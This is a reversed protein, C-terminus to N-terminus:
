CSAFTSDWGSGDDKYTIRPPANAMSAKFNRIDKKGKVKPRHPPPVEQRGLAEWDLDKYWKHRELNSFEGWRMPLRKCPEPDLLGRILSRADGKCSTPFDVRDIGDVIRQYMKMSDAAEFPPEGALLEWIFIGLTWWDLAFTHGRQKVMEPAFYSPTGCVTYTKGFTLKALGMDTLKAHGEANLVVNEPKLDRYIVKLGHLHRLACAMSASYFQAHKTSGYFGQRNYLAYLEGGLAVELLFFLDQPGSYTAHLSVIFPSDAMWLVEKENMVSEQLGLKVIYAKSMTKLAYAEKTKKHEYLEVLGFAGCGLLGVKALDSQLIAEKPKAKSAAIKQKSARRAGSQGEKILDELPGLLMDFSAKDLVLATAIESMVQITASRPENSLLAREGFFPLSGASRCAVLRHVERGDKIVALEGELLIYFATGPHGQEVIVEAKDYQLEVFAQAMARLEAPLLCQLITVGKLCEIHQEIQENTSRMLIKKFNARDFVWVISDTQAQVTASRPAVCLLAMEGFSGGPGITKLTRVGMIKREVGQGSAKQTDRETASVKFSGDQVVYFYDAVIDDEQILSTGAKVTEKWCVDVMAQFREDDMSVMMQLNENQQMAKTIFAREAPTKKPAEKTSMTKGGTGAIAKRNTFELKENLELERFKDRTISLTSLETDAVITATRPMDWVLAKEGFYDGATLRAVLRPADGDGGQAEGAVHATAEGSRVIFFERGLDGQKIVVEGRKFSRRTCAQALVPREAEPLKQFLPVKSLFRVTEQVEGNQPAEYKKASQASAGCGM